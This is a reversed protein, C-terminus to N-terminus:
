RVACSGNRNSPTATLTLVFDLANNNTDNAVRKYSRDTNSAGFSQLPQGEKFVAGPSMGVADVVPGDARRLAIGGDDSLGVGYSADGPVSGSYGGQSANTLLYHCGAGLQSGVALVHRTAVAGSGDSVDIRWGSLDITSPSDNRLEIFEDDAGSPGRTRFENIVVSAPLPLGPPPTSPPMSGGVPVIRAVFPEGTWTAVCDNLTYSGSSLGDIVGVGNELRLTATWQERYGFEPTESRVGLQLATGAVSGDIVFRVAGHAGSAVIFDDNSGSVRSGTRTITSATFALVIFSTSDPVGLCTAGIPLPGVPSAGRRSELVLVRTAGEPLMTRVASDVTAADGIGTPAAPSGSGCGAVALLLPLCAAL